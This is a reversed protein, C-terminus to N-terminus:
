QPRLPPTASTRKRAFTRSSVDEQALRRLAVLVDDTLVTGVIAQRLAAEPSDTPLSAIDITAAARAAAAYGDLDQTRVEVGGAELRALARALDARAPSRSEVAWGLRRILTDASATQLTIDLPGCLVGQATGLLDHWTDPPNDLTQVVRRVQALPLGAGKVLARILRLREVHREDYTSSTATVPAGAPLLGERLYYKVTAVSVGAAKSLESLRM